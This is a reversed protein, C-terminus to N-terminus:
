AIIFYCRNSLFNCSCAEFSTAQLYMSFDVKYNVDNTLLFSGLIFLFLKRHNSLEKSCSALVNTVNEKLFYCLPLKLGYGQLRTVGRIPRM